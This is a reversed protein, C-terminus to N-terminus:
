PKKTKNKGFLLIYIIKYTLAQIQIYYHSANQSFIGLLVHKFVCKDLYLIYIGSCYSLM